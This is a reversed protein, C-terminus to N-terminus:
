EGPPLDPFPGDGAAFYSIAREDDSVEVRFVMDNHQHISLVHDPEYDMLYSFMVKGIMGHSVVAIHKHESELLEHLFPKSREFMDPYNEGNPPRFHFRNAELAQWEEPWKNPIDAYM